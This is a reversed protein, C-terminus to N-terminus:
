TKLLLYQQLKNPLPLKYVASPLYRQGLISRLQYRCLCQLSRANSCLELMMDSLRNDSALRACLEGNEQRLECLGASEILLYLVADDDPTNIGSAQVSCARSLASDGKADVHDVNANYELLVRITDLNGKVAAWGLPTSDNYDTANVDAGSELLERVAGSKNRFSAWHLATGLNTDPQNPDAGGDLLM